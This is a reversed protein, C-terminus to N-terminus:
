GIIIGHFRLVGYGGQFLEDVLHAHVHMGVETGDARLVFRTFCHRGADQCVVDFGGGDERVAVADVTM